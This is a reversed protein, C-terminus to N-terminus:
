IEMFNYSMKLSLVRNGRERERPELIEFSGGGRSRQLTSQILFKLFNKFNECLCHIVFNMLNLLLLLNFYSMCYESSNTLIKVHLLIELGAYLFYYLIYTFLM